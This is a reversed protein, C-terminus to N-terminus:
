WRRRDVLEAQLSLTSYPKLMAPSGISCISSCPSVERECMKKRSLVSSDFVLFSLWLANSLLHHVNRVEQSTLCPLLLWLLTKHYSSLMRHLRPESLLSDLFVIIARKVKAELSHKDMSSSSPASPTSSSFIHQLAALLDLFLPLCDEQVKHSVFSSCLSTMLTVVELLRPLLLLSAFEASSDDGTKMRSSETGKETMVVASSSPVSLLTKIACPKAATTTTSSFRVRKWFLNTLEKVKDIVVKWAKHITPLLYKEHPLLRLLAHALTQLATQQTSLDSWHLLYLAREVLDMVLQISATLPVEEEEQGQEGKDEEQKKEEQLPLSSVSFVAVLRDDFATLSQVMGDFIKEAESFQTKEQEERALSSFFAETGANEFLPLLALLRSATPCIAPVLSSTSPLPITLAFTQLVKVLQKVALSSAISSTSQLDIVDLTDRIINNLLYSPVVEPVFGDHVGDSLANLQISCTNFVYDILLHVAVDCDVVRGLPTYISGISRLTACLFDTIEDM